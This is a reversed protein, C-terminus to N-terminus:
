YRGHCHKYKKGSGCSCPSNRSLSGSPAIRRQIQGCPGLRGVEVSGGGVGLSLSNADVKIGIKCGEATVKDGEFIRGDPMTISIAKGEECSISVGRHYMDLREIILKNPPSTRIALIIDGLQRRIVIRGGRTEVDWNETSSQWENEEISFIINGVRDTLLANIAFPQGPESPPSISLIRTGFVEILTDVNIGRFNGVSIEPVSIGVDLEEFSFGDQRCKPNKRAISITEKSLFGRTKKAHCSTCLLIIGVPDHFKAEAFEPDFHEYEYIAKGCVVCGFGDHQRVVRKVEAPINRNLGYRNQMPASSKCYSQKQRSDRPSVPSVTVTCEIASPWRCILHVTVAIKVGFTSLNILKAEGVGTLTLSRGQSVERDV